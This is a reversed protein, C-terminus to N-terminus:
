YGSAIRAIDGRAVGIDGLLRDDLRMLARFTRHRRYWARLAQLPSGFREDLKQGFRGVFLPERRGDFVFSM